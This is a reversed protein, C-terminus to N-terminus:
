VSLRGDWCHQRGARPHCRLHAELHTPRRGCPHGPGPLLPTASCRHGPVRSPPRGLHGLPQAM